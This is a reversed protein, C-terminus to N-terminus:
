VIDLLRDEVEERLFWIEEQLVKKIDEELVCVKEIFFEVEIMDRIIDIFDIMIGFVKFM